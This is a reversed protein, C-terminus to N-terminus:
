FLEPFMIVIMFLHLIFWTNFLVSGITLFHRKYNNNARVKRLHAAWCFSAPVLLIILAAFTIALGIEAVWEAIKGHQATIYLLILVLAQTAVFLVAKVWPKSLSLPHTSTM